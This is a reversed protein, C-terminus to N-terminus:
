TNTLPNVGFSYDCDTKILCYLDIVNLADKVVLQITHAACRIASLNFYEDQGHENTVRPMIDALVADHQPNYPNENESDDLSINCEEIIMDLMDDDTLEDIELIAKIKSNIQSDNEIQLKKSAEGMKTVERQSKGSEFDLKRTVKQKPTSKVASDNKDELIDELAIMKQGNKANDASISVVQRKDIDYRKLCERYSQLMNEATHSKNLVVMGINHICIKSKEIYQADIGFVSRGLRSGIDIQISIARNKVLNSIEKRILDAAYDLYKHVDSQACHNLDLRYGAMEFERLQSGIIQQFGYDMLSKFPRGGLAVISVCNQILKIRKVQVSEIEGVIECFTDPHKNQLHSALNSIKTGNILKRNNECLVCRYFIQGDQHDVEDFFQKAKQGRTEKRPTIQLKKTSSKSIKPASDNDKSERDDM